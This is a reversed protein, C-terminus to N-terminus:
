WSNISLYQWLLSSSWFVSTRSCFRSLTIALLALGLGLKFRWLGAGMGCGCSLGYWGESSSIFKFFFMSYISMIIRLLDLIGAGAGGWFRGFKYTNLDAMYFLFTWSDFMLSSISFSALAGGGALM